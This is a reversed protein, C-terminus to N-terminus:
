SVVGVGIESRCGVEGPLIRLRLRRLQAGPNGVVVAAVVDLVIRDDGVGDVVPEEGAQLLQLLGKGLEGAGVGGGPPDPRGGGLREGPDLVDRRQEAEVGSEILFFDALEEVKQAAFGPALTEGPDGFGLEVAGRHLQDVLPSDEPPAGGAAVAPDALLDGGVQRRHAGEGQAQAAFVQGGEEGHAALDVKGLLGKKLEVALPQLVALLGKGVGAVGAGPGQAPEVGLDDGAPGQRDVAVFDQLDLPRGEGAVPLDQLGQLAPPQAGVGAVAPHGVELFDGGVPLLQDFFAVLEGVLDVADHDFEVVQRQPLAEAAAM